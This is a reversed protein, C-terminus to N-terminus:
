PCTGWVPYHHAQLIASGGAFTMRDGSIHQVCWGSLDHDFSSANTFMDSMNTVSSVDWGSIDANFAAAGRFMDSMNTVSSVDWASIDANFAAAAAAVFSEGTFMGEMNTVSSVDWGSIDANFNSCGVFMRAMNTIGSGFPNASFATLNECGFFANSWNSAGVLSGYQVVDQIKLRDDSLADRFFPAPCTGTVAVNYDGAAAYVHASPATTVHDSSGDGWDFIADYVGGIRHPWTFSDGDNDIRITFVFASPDFEPGSATPVGVAGMMAQMMLIM